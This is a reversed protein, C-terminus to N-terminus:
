QKITKTGSPYDWKLSMIINYFVWTCLNQSGNIHISQAKLFMHYIYSQIQIKLVNKATMDRLIYSFLFNIYIYEVGFFHISFDNHVNIKYEMLNDFIHTIRVVIQYLIIEYLINYRRLNLIYAQFKRFSKM